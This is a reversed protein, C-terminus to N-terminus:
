RRGQRRPPSQKQEARMLGTMAPWHKTGSDPIETLETQTHDSGTDSSSAGSESTGYAQISPEAVGEEHPGPSGTFYPVTADYLIGCMGCVEVSNVQSGECMVGQMPDNDMGCHQQEKPVDGFRKLRIFGNEGWSPGYSNRILWYKTGLDTGYGYATVAHDLVGGPSCGDFVGSSYMFWDNAAVAVAVPGYTAIAKALPLDENSSLTHYGVMGISSGTQQSTKGDNNCSGTEAMYPMEEDTSLGNKLVWDFGLEVTAGDCGGKGGCNHPNPTCSVVQQPSFRPVDGGKTAATHIEYHAELVSIVTFAWCSGCGGQDRINRSTTLNRWDMTEPIEKETLADMQLMSSISSGRRSLIKKVTRDYGLM